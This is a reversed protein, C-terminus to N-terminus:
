CSGEWHRCDDPIGLTPLYLYRPVHLLLAIIAPPISLEWDGIRALLITQHAHKGVPSSHLPTCPLSPPSYRRVADIM